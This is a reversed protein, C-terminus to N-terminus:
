CVTKPEDACCALPLMSFEQLVDPSILQGFTRYPAPRLGYKQALVRVYEVAELTVDGLHFDQDHGEAALMMTEAWCAFIEGSPLGVNMGYDIDPTAALGGDIVLANKERALTDSLM